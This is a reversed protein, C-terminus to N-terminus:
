GAITFTLTVPTTQNAFRDTAIFVATYTGAPATVTITTGALAAHPTAVAVLAVAIGASCRIRRNLGWSGM